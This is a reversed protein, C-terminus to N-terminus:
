LTATNRIDPTCEFRLIIDNYFYRIRMSTLVNCKVVANLISYVRGLHLM